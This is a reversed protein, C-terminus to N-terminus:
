RLLRNGTERTDDPNHVLSLHHVPVRCGSGGLHSQGQQKMEVQRSTGGPTEWMMLKDGFASGRGSPLDVM